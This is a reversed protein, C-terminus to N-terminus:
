GKHYLADLSNITTCVFIFYSFGLKGDNKDVAYNKRSHRM